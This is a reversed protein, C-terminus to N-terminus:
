CGCSGVIKVTQERGGKVVNITGIYDSGEHEESSGKTVVTIITIKSGAAVYSDTTRQGRRVDGRPISVSRVRKLRVDQGDIIM